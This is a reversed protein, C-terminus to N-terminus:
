NGMWNIEANPQPQGTGLFEWSVPSCPLLESCETGLSQLWVAQRLVGPRIRPLPPVQRTEPGGSDGDGPVRRAPPNPAASSDGGTFADLSDQVQGPRSPCGAVARSRPAGPHQSPPRAPLSVARQTRKMSLRGSIVEQCCSMQSGSGHQLALPDRPFNQPLSHSSLLRFTNPAQLQRPHGPPRWAM